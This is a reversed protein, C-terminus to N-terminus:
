FKYELGALFSRGPMPYGSTLEFHHDLLNAAKVQFGLSGAKGLCFAKSLSVDLTNWDLKNGMGDERGARLHFLGEAQWGKWAAHATLVLTHVPIYALQQDYTYSDPTKDVAKQWGYRVSGGTKWDGAAYQAALLADLGKAQVKGVNYPLWIYGMEDVPAWTIKNTLYNYYGDLRANLAWAGLERNLDLGVDALWADEPKLDPNGSDPYYLDNFTPTRYARRGFAVADLGDVLTFRLDASPSFSNWQVGGKDFVGAYELALDAQFRETRFASAAAAVTGLRSANYLDSKLGDWSLDAALSVTWWPQLRWKHATNLQLETQEYRSDGWQSLYSLDDYSAKASVDLSYVPGFAKRLVAQALLNRDNQRDESPWSVSGPTGRKSGNYYVKGHFDGGELLGWVDAGAQLQKIDNNVRLSGDELPFDGQSVIGAAHASLSWREGLRADLRGYPKWTGFSGGQLRFTGAIPAERFVPRLTQFSVSNQAYDAVVSGLSGMGLMGLDLQGSQVNGVRVGDLYIATHASGFGRLSVSKLGAAGGYDGVTLGPLQLLAGSVDMGSQILVTDTRSVVVGRDAVVTVAQLTDPQAALLAAAAFLSFLM